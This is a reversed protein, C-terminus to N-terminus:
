AAEDLSIKESLSVAEESLSEIGKSIPVLYEPNDIDIGILAYADKTSLSNGCALFKKYNAIAQQDGALIKESISYAAATSVGYQYVYYDLYLHSLVIWGATATSEKLDYGRYEKETEIYLENLKDATLPEGDSVLKRARREFDAFQVQVYYDIDAYKLSEKTYFLKESDTKANDRLYSLVLFENTIAAVESVISSPSKDDFVPQAESSLYHNVAHGMEHSLADVGGFDGLFNVLVYPHDTVNEVCYGGTDKGKAPYLDIWNESFAKNLVATYDSGLPRTANIIIKQADDYTYTPNYPVYSINEARQYVDSTNWLNNMNKKTGDILAEYGEDSFGDAQMRYDFTSDYGQNQYYQEELYYFNNLNAAFLDAFRVYTDEIANDVLERDADNSYSLMSANYDAVIERGDSLKVTPFPMSSYFLIQYENQFANIAYGTSELLEREKDSVLEDSGDSEILKKLLKYYPTFSKDALAASLIKDDVAYLKEFVYNDANRYASWVKSCYSELVTNDKDASNLQVKLERYISILYERTQIEDRCNLLTLLSKKDTINDAYKKYQPILENIINDVESKVAATDKYLETLDWSTHQQSNGTTACVPCVCVSIITVASVAMAIARKLLKGKIIM